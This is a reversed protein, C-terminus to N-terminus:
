MLREYDKRGKISKVEYSDKQFPFILPRDLMEFFKSGFHDLKRIAKLVLPEEIKHEEIFSYFENM